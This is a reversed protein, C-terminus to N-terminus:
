SDQRPLLLAWAACHFLLQTWPLTSTGPHAHFLLQLPDTAVLLTGEPLLLLAEANPTAALLVCGRATVRESFFVM